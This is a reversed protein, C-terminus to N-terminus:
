ADAVEWHNGDPGVIKYHYKNTEGAHLDCQEHALCRTRAQDISSFQSLFKWPGAGEKYFVKFPFPNV